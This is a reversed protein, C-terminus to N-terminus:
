RENLSAEMQPQHDFVQNKVPQSKNVWKTIDRSFVNNPIIENALERRKDNFWGWKNFYIVSSKLHCLLLKFNRYSAKNYSHTIQELPYYVTLSNENIRRCLDTDELYLFFREDFTGVIPFLKTRIFMFCGSLNPVLMMSNFDKGKLEYSELFNQLFPKIPGPIFRRAFLDAPSPLKKCLYQLEGDQYLVKPMVLGVDMNYEMFNFLGTLTNANFHIDPNLVLHYKSVGISKNIAINHGAGYGINKGTHIYEINYMDLLIRFADTESNDIIYLKKLLSCNLFSEIAKKVENLKNNYIVISGTIDTM